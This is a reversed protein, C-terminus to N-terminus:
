AADAAVGFLLLIGDGEGAAARELGRESGEVARVDRRVRLRPDPAPGLGIEEARHAFAVPGVALVVKGAKGVGREGLDDVAIQAVQPGEHAGQRGAGAGALFVIQSEEVAPTEEDREPLPEEESGARERVERPERVDGGAGRKPPLGEAKAAFAM